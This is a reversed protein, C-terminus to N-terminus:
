TVQVLNALPIYRKARDVIVYAGPTVLGSETAQPTDPFSDIISIAGFYQGRTVRVRSGIALDQHETEDDEADFASYSKPQSTPALIISRPTEYKFFNPPTLSPTVGRISVEHGIIHRLTAFTHSSMPRDGFGETAVVCVKVPWPLDLLAADITSVIIGRVGHADAARLVDEDISQGALLITNQAHDDIDSPDMYDTPHDVMRKVLGHAEGGFGAVAQVIAGIAEIVVGRNASIKTVTGDIFAQIKTVTRETELLVWGPGIAVIIGKAPAYAVRKRILGKISALVEGAEVVDGIEKHMVEDMDLEHRSLHRAVNVAAYGSPSEIQAVTDLARVEQGRQVMIKGLGPLLRKVLIPQETNITITPLKM